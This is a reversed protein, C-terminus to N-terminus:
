RLISSSKNKMNYTQVKEEYSKVYFCDHLNFSEFAKSRYYQVDTCHESTRKHSDVETTLYFRTSNAKEQNVKHVFLASNDKLAKQFAFIFVQFKPCSPTFRFGARNRLYVTCTSKTRMNLVLFLLRLTQALTSINMTRMWPISLTWITVYVIDYPLM